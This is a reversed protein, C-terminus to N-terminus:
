ARKEPEPAPARCHRDIYEQHGPMAAAAEAISQRISALYGASQVPDRLDVLPAHRQPTVDQGVFVALWNPNQFLELGDSVINGAARFQEIKYALADPVPMAACYRWLAGDDRTTAKYHLIIFDRVREFELQTLRNYEAVSAANADRDPFLALFRTIGSQILHLSTSELPELFGSSLGIAVCNRNWHVKRRGATFRILRPDALPASELNELLTRAAEDESVFGSCHVHGNGIRHQLPIRWQWGAERATSRTYPTFADAHACPVAWARDCPLWHSWNEFGSRLADEIILGRFGSCDVFFDAEIERGDALTVSRIMGDEGHLAVDVIRGEIRTVGRKEAFARLYKAYLSADFHYAYDFTSQIRRPDLMPRDFRNARAAGWAMSHDQLSATDGGARARLWHHHLPTADFDAGFRGFPHFYRDGIRGWDVFEIGLKFSGQTAAVFAAEDIGLSRNFLKIPPITAEGVGVIGIEDSEVVTVACAGQVAKSIAAASMWGASGGGVILLHRLRRDGPGGGLGEPPGRSAIPSDTM